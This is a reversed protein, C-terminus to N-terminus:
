EAASSVNGALTTISALSNILTVTLVANQGFPAETIATVVGLVTIDDGATGYRKGVISVAPHSDDALQQVAVCDNAECTFTSPDRPAQAVVSALSGSGSVSVVKAVISVHDNVSVTKGNKNTGTAM